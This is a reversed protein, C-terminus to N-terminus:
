RRILVNAYVTRGGAAARVPLFPVGSDGVELAGDLPSPARTWRTRLGRSSEYLGTRDVPALLVTELDGGVENAVTVELVRPLGAGPGAPAIRASVFLEETELEFAVRARGTRDCFTLECVAPIEPHQPRVVAMAHTPLLLAPLVIIAFKRFV